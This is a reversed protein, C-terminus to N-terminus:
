CLLNLTNSALGSPGHAGLELERALWTWRREVEVDVEVEVGGGAERLTVVAIMM